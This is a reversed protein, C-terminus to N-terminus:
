ETPFEYSKAADSEVGAALIEQGVPVEPNIKFISSIRPPDRDEPAGWPYDGLLGEFNLEEISNMAEVIGERSLDGREVAEELVATVAMAAAYGFAFYQDPAQDPFYKEMDAIMGAMGPVEESGWTDGEGVIWVHEVAYDKLDTGGFVSLWSPSQLLWQPEFGNQIAAGMIGSFSAATITGWVADCNASKLENIQATFDTDTVAFSVNAAIEFGLEESAHEMGEFGAQGYPDDQGLFCITKGEGGNEIYYSIGNIVQIQYPTGVPLLQQERVWFSDLSAPQAVLNDTALQELLANVIPTGLLQALMVVDDKMGNYVQTATPADYKSDGIELEVKYKGAIGGADNIKNFWTQTGNTLPVGIIAVRETLASIVGLRITTGDFGPVPEPEGAEEDGADEETTDDTTADDDDDDGRGCAAAVLTLAFLLAFLRSLRSRHM